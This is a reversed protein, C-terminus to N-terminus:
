YEGSCFIKEGCGTIFLDNYCGVKNSPKSCYYMYGAPCCNDTSRCWLDPHSCTTKASSSLGVVVAAIGVAALLGILIGTGASSSSAAAAEAAPAEAAPTAAAPAQLTNNVVPLKARVNPLEACQAKVEASGFGNGMTLLGTGDPQVAVGDIQNGAVGQESGFTPTCPISKGASDFAHVELVVQMGPRLLGDPIPKRTLPDLTEITISGGDGSSSAAAAMSVAPTLLSIIVLTSVWSIPKM